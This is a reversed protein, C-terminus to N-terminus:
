AFSVTDLKSTPDDKLQEEHNKQMVLALAKVVAPQQLIQRLVKDGQGGSSSGGAAAAATTAPPKSLVADLREVLQTDGLPAVQQLM